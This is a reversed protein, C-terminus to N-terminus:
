RGFSSVVLVLRMTRRVVGGGVMFGVDGSSSEVEGDCGRWLFFGEYVM